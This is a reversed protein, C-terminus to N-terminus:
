FSTLAGRTLKSLSVAPSGSGRSFKSLSHMDDCYFTSLLFGDLKCVVGKVIVSWDWFLSEIGSHAVFCAKPSSRSRLLQFNLLQLLEKQSNIKSTPCFLFRQFRLLCVEM